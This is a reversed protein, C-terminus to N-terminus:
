DDQNEFHHYHHHIHVYSYRHITSSSFSHNDNSSNSKTQEQDDKYEEDSSSSPSILNELEINYLQEEKKDSYNDDGNENQIKNNYNIDNKSNGTLKAYLLNNKVNKKAKLDLYEKFKSTQLKRRFNLQHPSFSNPDPSKKGGNCIKAHLVSDYGCLNKEGSGTTSFIAPNVAYQQQYIPIHPQLNRKKRHELFSSPVTINETRKHRHGVRKGNTQFCLRNKEMSERIIDILENRKLGNNNCSSTHQTNELDGASGGIGYQTNKTNRCNIPCKHKQKSKWAAENGVSLSRQRSENKKIRRPKRVAPKVKVERKPTCDPTEQLTNSKKSSCNQKLNNRLEFDNECKINSKRGNNHASYKTITHKKTLTKNEPSITLRVNITKSGNCPVTVSKGISEYITYVIGAIGDKTIKGHHGDLDYFTFSFQLPLSSISSEVSVDCTFEELCVSQKNKHCEKTDFHTENTSYKLKKDQNNQSSEEILKSSDDKSPLDEASKDDEILLDPPASCSSTRGQAYILDESDTPCDLVKNYLIKQSIKVKKWWNKMLNGAM